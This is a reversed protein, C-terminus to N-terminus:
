VIKLLHRIQYDISDKKKENCNSCLMQINNELEDGVYKFPVIHDAHSSLDINKKCFACKYGQRNLLQMKIDDGITKRYSSKNLFAKVLILMREVKEDDLDEDYQRKLLNKISTSQSSSNALINRLKNKKIYDEHDNCINKFISLLQAEELANLIKAKSM